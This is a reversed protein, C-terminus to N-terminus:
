ILNCYLICIFISISVGEIWLWRGFYFCRADLRKEVLLLLGVIVGVIYVHVKWDVWRLGDVTYTALNRISLHDATVVVWALNLPEVELTHFQAALRFTFPVTRMTAPLAVLDHLFESIMISSACWCVRIVSISIWRNSGFLTRKGNIKKNCDHFM